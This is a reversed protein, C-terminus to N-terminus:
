SMPFGEIPARPKEMVDPAGRVPETINSNGGDVSVLLLEKLCYAQMGM